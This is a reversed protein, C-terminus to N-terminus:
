TRERPDITDPLGISTVSSITLPSLIKGYPALVPILLRRPLLNTM